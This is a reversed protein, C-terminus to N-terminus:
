STAKSTSNLAYRLMSQLVKKASKTCIAVLSNIKFSLFTCIKHLSHASILFVKKAYIIHQQKLPHIMICFLLPTTNICGQQLFSVIGPFTVYKDCKKCDISSIDTLKHLLFLLKTTLVSYFSAFYREFQGGQSPWGGNGLVYIYVFVCFHYKLPHCLTAYVFFLVQCM